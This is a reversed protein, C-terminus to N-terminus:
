TIGLGLTSVKLSQVRKSQVKKIGNKKGLYSSLFSFITIKGAKWKESKASTEIRHPEGM